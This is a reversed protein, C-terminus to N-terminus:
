FDSTPFFETWCPNEPESKVLLSSFIVALWRTGSPPILCVYFVPRSVRPGYTDDSHSPNERSEANARVCPQTSALPSVRAINSNILWRILVANSAIVLNWGRVAKQIHLDRKVSHLSLAPALLSSFLFDLSKTQNEEWKIDTRSTQFNVIIVQHHNNQQLHRVVSTVHTHPFQTLLFSCIIWHSRMLKTLISALTTEACM